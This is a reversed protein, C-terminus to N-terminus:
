LFHNEFKLDTLIKMITSHIEGIPRDANVVFSRELVTKQFNKYREDLETIYELTVHTDGPGKRGLVRKFCNEPASDLFIWYDPDWGLRHYLLDYTMKENPGLKSFVDRSSRTSREYIGSGYDQFTALVATQMHYAQEQPFRYFEELPWLHIPERYSPFYRSLLDLQTSKGSGINGEIAIKM